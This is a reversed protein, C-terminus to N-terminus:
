LQQLEPMYGLFNLIQVDLAGVLWELLSLMEEMIVFLHDVLIEKM